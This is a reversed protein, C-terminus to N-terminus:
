KNLRRNKLDKIKKRLDEKMDLRKSIEPLEKFSLDPVIEHYKFIPESRPLNIKVDM